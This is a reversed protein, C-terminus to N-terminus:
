FADKVSVYLILVDDNIFTEVDSENVKAGGGHHHRLLEKVIETACQFVARWLHKPSIRVYRWYLGLNFMKTGETAKM